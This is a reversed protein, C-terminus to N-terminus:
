NNWNTIWKVKDSINKGGATSWLDFTANYGTSTDKQYATSYGYCNGFPDVIYNVKTVNGSSDKTLNLMGAKFEFYGKGDGADFKFNANQDGSLEKYLYLCADTYGASSPVGNVRADLANTKGPSVPEGADNPYTGNDAKYQELAVSLAKIEAEARLSASRNQVYGAVNLLIAALILIVAIVALMEVLTFATQARRHLTRNM